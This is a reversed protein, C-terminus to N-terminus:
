CKYLIVIGRWQQWTGVQCIDATKYFTKKDVTKLSEVICPLDVVQLFFVTFDSYEFYHKGMKQTLCVYVSLTHNESLYAISLVLTRCLFMGEWFCSCFLTIALGICLWFCNLLLLLSISYYYNCLAHSHYFHWYMLCYFDLVWLREVIHTKHSM